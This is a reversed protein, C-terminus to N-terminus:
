NMELIARKTMDDQVWSVIMEGVDGVLKEYHDGKFFLGTHAGVQDTDKMFIKVWKPDAQGNVKSPMNCFRREKPPKPSKGKGWQETPSPLPSLTDPDFDAQSVQSNSIDESQTTLTSPAMKSTGEESTSSSSAVAKAEKKRRKQEDKERKEAEQALKKKKKDIIKQRDKILKERDKVIKAYDKQAKKAEKEAQKRVDRDTYQELDVPEPKPPLEPIAPLNLDLSAVEDALTSSNTADTELSKQSQLKEDNQELNAKADNEINSLQIEQANDDTADDKPNEILQAFEQYEPPPDSEEPSDESIPQPDLIQLGSDDDDSADLTDQDLTGNELPVDADKQPNPLDYSKNSTQPTPPASHTDQLPGPSQSSPQGKPKKPYGHCVTYYQVFRVQPPVHPFGHHKLDDVDELRRINEYRTKLSNIDMLCGGFELHSTIHYTAADVIGESSHKEVFHVINKWWGRDQLRVDNPFPSNFNPDFTMGHSEFIRPRPSSASSPSVSSPDSYISTNGSTIQSLAQDPEENPIPAEPPNTTDAKPRFLSAIGATIIGPHLGLLPADLHVTGLIRHLFYGAGYQNSSPMLAVDAALLGGMSHGVLVVDTTPSEHPALWQSFNDRAVDLVKYTKYKPYIKSHIVHTESLALKLYHHVHAPFSQFSSDNGMFGHLYVVLLRRRGSEEGELPTPVLSQASSSRPDGLTSFSVPSLSRRKSSQPVDLPSAHDSYIKNM